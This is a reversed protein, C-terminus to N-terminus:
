RPVPNTIWQNQDARVKNVVVNGMGAANLTAQCSFEAAVDADTFTSARPPSVQGTIGECRRAASTAVAVPYYVTLNPFDQAPLHQLLYDAVSSDEVAVRVDGKACTKVQGFFQEVSGNLEPLEPGEYVLVSQEASACMQM